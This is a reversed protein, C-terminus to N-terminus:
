KANIVYKNSSSKLSSEFSKYSDNDKKNTIQGSKEIDSEEIDSEEINYEEIDSQYSEPELQYDKSDKIKTLLNISDATVGLVLKEEMVEILVIQKRPAIFSSALININYQKIGKNGFVRRISLRKIILLFLVLAGLVLALMAFAKIANEWLEPMSLM